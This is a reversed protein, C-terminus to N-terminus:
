DRRGSIRRRRGALAVVCLASLMAALAPPKENRGISCSQPSRLVQYGDVREIVHRLVLVGDGDPSESGDGQVVAASLWVHSSEPATFRFRLSSAGCDSVGVIRRGEQKVLYAAVDGDSKGDCRGEPGIDEAAPLAVKMNSGAPDLLELNLALPVKPDPWVVEVEYREGPTFQEPLGRVQVSPEAGGSHCVACTYGDLQSGTFFRGGGGGTESAEAFLLADSFAHAASPLSISGVFCALVLWRCTM